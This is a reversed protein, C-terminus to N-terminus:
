AGDPPSEAGLRRHMFFPSLVTYLFGLSLAIGALLRTCVFPMITFGILVPVFIWFHKMLKPYRIPSIMLISLGPVIIYIAIEVFLNGWLSRLDTFVLTVIFFAYIVTGIGPFGLAAFEQTKGWNGNRAYRIAGALLPLALISLIWNAPKEPFLLLSLAMPSIIYCLYDSFLDFLLGFDSTSELWRAAMGDLGDTLAGFTILTASLHAERYVAALLALGGLVVRSGTLCQPVLFRIPPSLHFRTM